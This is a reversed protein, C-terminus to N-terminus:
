KIFKWEADAGVYEMPNQGAEILKLDKNLADQYTKSLIELRDSQESVIKKAESIDELYNEL